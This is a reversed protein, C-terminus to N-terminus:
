QTIDWLLITGDASASALVGAEESFALDLVEANHGSFQDISEGTAPDWLVVDWFTAFAGLEGDSSFAIGPGTIQEQPYHFDTTVGFPIIESGYFFTSAIFMSNDPAIVIRYTTPEAYISDILDGTSPDVLIIEHDPYTIRLCVLYDGDYMFGGLYLDSDAYEFDMLRRGDAVDWINVVSDGARSALTEGDPSFVLENVAKSHGWLTHRRVGSDVDWIIISKDANGSALKMGDPSFVMVNVDNSHGSFNFKVEATATDWVQIVNNPTVVALLKGDPSLVPKEGSFTHPEFLEDVDYVIVRGDWLVRSLMQGNASFDVGYSVEHGALEFRNSVTGRSIDHRLTCGDFSVSVLESGDMSFAFDAIATSHGTLRRLRAGGVPNWLEVTGDFAGVALIAGDPSFKLSSSHSRLSVVNLSEYEESKGSGNLTRFRSWGETKWLVVTGDAAASALVTGDPSFDLSSVPHVYGNLTSLVDGSSLDWVYVAYVERIENWEEMKALSMGTALITGDPTFALSDLSSWWEVNEDPENLNIAVSGDELNLVSFDGSNRFYGGIFHTVALHNGDPSFALRNVRLDVDSDSQLLTQIPQGSGSDLLLVVPEKAFAADLEIKEAGAPYNYNNFSGVALTAGDPSFAVSTMPMNTPLFWMEQLSESESDLAYRYVGISTALAISGGDPALSADYIAGKGLKAIPGEPLYPSLYDDYPMRPTATPLPTHTITPTLTPPIRTASATATPQIYEAATAIQTESQECGALTIAGLLIVASLFWNVTSRIRTQM